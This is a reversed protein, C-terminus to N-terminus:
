REQKWVSVPLDDRVAAQGVGGLRLAVETVDEVAHAEIHPPFLVDGLSAKTRSPSSELAGRHQQQKEQQQLVPVDDRECTGVRQPAAM